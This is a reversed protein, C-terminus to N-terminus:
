GEQEGGALIHLVFAAQLSNRFRKTWKLTKIENPCNLLLYFISQDSKIMWRANYGFKLPSSFRRQGKSGMGLERVEPFICWANESGWLWQLRWLTCWCVSLQRRKVKAGTVAMARWPWSWRASGWGSSDQGRQFSHCQPARPWSWRYRGGESTWNEGSSCMSASCQWDLCSWLWVEWISLLLAWLDSAFAIIKNGGSPTQERLSDTWKRSPRGLIGASGQRRGGPTRKEYCTQHIYETGLQHRVRRSGMSQLYGELSRQGNFEGLLLVPILQWERRWSRKM